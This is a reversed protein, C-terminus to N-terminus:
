THLPPVHSRVVHAATSCTVAGRTYRHLVHGCWTCRSRLEGKGAGELAVRSMGFSVTAGGWGEVGAGRTCAGYRWPGRVSGEKGRRVEEGGVRERGEQVLRLPTWGAFLCDLATEPHGGERTTGSRVGGGLGVGIWGGGELVGDGGKRCWLGVERLCKGPGWRDWVGLGVGGLHWGAGGRESGGLGMGDLGM